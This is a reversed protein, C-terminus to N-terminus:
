WDCVAFPIGLSGLEQIFVGTAMLPLVSVNQDATCTSLECSSKIDNKLRLMIRPLKDDKSVTPGDMIVYPKVGNCALSGFFHRIVDALQDYNGGCQYDIGQGLYLHWLLSSGDIIVPTRKLQVKTWLSGISEAYSSLGHIGM